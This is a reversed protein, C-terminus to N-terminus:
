YRKFQMNRRSRSQLKKVGKTKVRFIFRLALGKNYGNIELYVFFLFETLRITWNMKWSQEM